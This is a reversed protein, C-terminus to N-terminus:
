RRQPTTPGAARTGRAAARPCAGAGLWLCGRHVEVQSGLREGKLFLQAAPEPGVQATGPALFQAVSGRGLVGQDLDAARPLALEVLRPIEAHAPRLLPAAAAGALDLLGDELRLERAGVCRGDRV